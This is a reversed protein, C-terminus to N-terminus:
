IQLPFQVPYGFGSIKVIYSGETSNHLIINNLKLDRHISSEEHITQVGLVLLFLNFYSFYFFLMSLQFMIDIVVNLSLKNNHNKLLNRLTGKNAYEM